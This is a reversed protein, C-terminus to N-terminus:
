SSDICGSKLRFGHRRLTNGAVQEIERVQDNSLEMSWRHLSDRHIREVAADVATPDQDLELFEMIKALILGPTTVFGRYTVSFVRESPIASLGEDALDVCRTWQRACLIHLPDESLSRDIGEFRPGWSRVRSGRRPTRPLRSRVVSAVETPWARAPVFRAKRFLYGVPTTGLWRRMTSIAAARGDRVIYLYRAQPLASAVYPVRLSNACTKEVVVELNHRQALKDFAKRIYRRGRNTMQEASLEDTLENWNDYRWLPNLEDCPWTGVRSLTTLADRIANTGSRPAGIIILPQYPRM